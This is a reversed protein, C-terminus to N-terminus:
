AWDRERLTAARIAIIRVLVPSDEARKYGHALSILVAAGISLQDLDRLRSRGSRHGKLAFACTSVLTPAPLHPACRLNYNNILM